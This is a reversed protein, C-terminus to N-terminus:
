AGFDIISNVLDFPTETLLETLQLDSAESEKTILWTHRVSKCCPRVKGKRPLEYIRLELDKLM